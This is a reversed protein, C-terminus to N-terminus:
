SLRRTQMQSILLAVQTWLEARAADGADRNDDALADAIQLADRPFATALLKATQRVEEIDPTAVALM